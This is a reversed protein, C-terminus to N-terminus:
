LQNSTLYAVAFMSAAFSLYAMIIVARPKTKKLNLAQVLFLIVILIAIFGILLSLISLVVM